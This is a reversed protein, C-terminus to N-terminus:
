PCEGNILPPEESAAAAPEYIMENGRGGGVVSFRGLYHYDPLFRSGMERGSSNGQLHASEFNCIVIPEFRMSGVHFRYLGGGWNKGLKVLFDHGDM